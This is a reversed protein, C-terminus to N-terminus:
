NRRLALRFVFFLPLVVLACVVYFVWDAPGSHGALEIKLIPELRWLVPTLLMAIIWGTPLGIVLALASAIISRKMATDELSNVEGAVETRRVVAIRALDHLRLAHRM